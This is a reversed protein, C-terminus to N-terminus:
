WGIHKKNKTIPLPKFYLKSINADNLIEMQKISTKKTKMNNLYIIKYISITLSLKIYISNYISYLGGALYIYILWQVFDLVIKL